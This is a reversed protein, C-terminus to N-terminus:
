QCANELIRAEPRHDDIQEIHPEHSSAPERCRGQHGIRVGHQPDQLEDVEAGGDVDEGGTGPAREPRSSWATM